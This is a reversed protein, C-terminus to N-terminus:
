CLCLYSRISYIHNSFGVYVKAALIQNIQKQCLCSKGSTFSFLIRWVGDGFAGHDLEQGRRSEDTREPRSNHLGLCLVSICQAKKWREMPALTLKKLSKLEDTPNSWSQSRMHMPSGQCGTVRGGPWRRKNVASRIVVASLSCLSCSQSGAEM